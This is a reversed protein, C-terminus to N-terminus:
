NGWTESQTRCALAMLDRVAAGFRAHRKDHTQGQAYRYYIQAIIVAMKFYAFTLYYGFHHVDRGSLRAYAEVWDDRSYFGRSATIVGEGLFELATGSYEWDWYSVAVALDAMPDGVTAMEWDFVGVLDTLGENFLVNNLKYDYHIVAADSSDTAQDVVWACLADVGAIDDIRVRRYREVWGEAQRRMFGQPRVMDALSSSRWDVQHLDVLRRVMVASIRQGLDRSEGGAVFTAADVLVGQRSEMIFFPVGLVSDEGVAALVRPAWQYLPHIGVLFKAERLMDHARPPVPGKPPRRLVVATVGNTLRYTLNSHGAAYQAATWPGLGNEGLVIHLYPALASLDIEDGPRVGILQDM